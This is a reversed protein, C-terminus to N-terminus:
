LARFLRAQFCREVVNSSIQNKAYSLLDGTIITVFIIVFIVSSSISSSIIIIIITVNIFLFLVLVLLLILLVILLLLLLLLVQLLLLLVLLSLLSVLLLVELDGLWHFRFGRGGVLAGSLGSLCICSQSFHINSVGINVM